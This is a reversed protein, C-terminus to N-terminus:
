NIAQMLGIAPVQELLDEITQPRSFLYGQGIQAGMGLVCSLEMETEIGEAVVTLDLRECLTLIMELIARKEADHDLGSILSRDIKLQDLPLSRIYGLSSYGAGFDDLSIAVGQKRLRHILHVAVNPDAMVATETLEVKLRDPSVSERALVELIQDALNPDHMEAPSLNISLTFDNGYRELLREDHLMPVALELMRGTLQRILGTREAVPVFLMPSILGREPHRIRALVEFGTVRGEQLDVLPQLFAELWGHRLASRLTQEMDLRGHTETRMTDEFLVFNGTGKERAEGLATRGAQILGQATVPSDEAVQAAAMVASLWVQREGLSFPDDMANMIHEAREYLASEDTTHFVFALTGDPLSAILERPQLTRTLRQRLALRLQRNEQADLTAAILPCNPINLLALTLPSHPEAGLATSLHRELYDVNAFGTDADIYQPDHLSQDLHSLLANAANALAQLDADDDPLPLPSTTGGSLRSELQQTLARIHSRLQDM